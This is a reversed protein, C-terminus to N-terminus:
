RRHDVKWRGGEWEVWPTSKATKLADRAAKAKGLYDAISVGSEVVGYTVAYRMFEAVVLALVAEHLVFTGSISMLYFAFVLVDSMLCYRVANSVALCKLAKDLQLDKESALSCIMVLCCMDVVPLVVLFILLTM